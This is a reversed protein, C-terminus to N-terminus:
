PGGLSWPEEERYPHSIRQTPDLKGKWALHWRALHSCLSLGRSRSRRAPGSSPARKAPPPSAWSKHVQRLKASSVLWPYAWSSITSEPMAGLSEGAKGSLSVTVAAPPARPTSHCLWLATYRKCCEWVGSGVVLSKLSPGNRQDGVDGLSERFCESSPM